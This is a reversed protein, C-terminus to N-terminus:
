MFSFADDTHTLLLINLTHCSSIRTVCSKVCFSLHHCKAWKVHSPSVNFDYLSVMCEQDQDQEQEQEMGSSQTTTM